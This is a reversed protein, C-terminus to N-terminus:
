KVWCSADESGASACILWWFNCSLNLEHFYIFIWSLMNAVLNSYKECLNRYSHEKSENKLHSLYNTQNSFGPLFILLVFSALVFSSSFCSPRLNKKSRCFVLVCSILNDLQCTCCYYVCYTVRTIRRPGAMLPSIGRGRRMLILKDCRNSRSESEPWIRKISEPWIVKVGSLVQCVHLRSNHWTQFCM